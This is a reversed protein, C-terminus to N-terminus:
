SARWSLGRVPSVPGYRILVPAKILYGPFTWSNTPELMLGLGLIALYSFDAQLGEIRRSGASLSHLKVTENGPLFQDTEGQQM